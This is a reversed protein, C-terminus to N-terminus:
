EEGAKVRAFRAVAAQKGLGEVLKGISVKPDKVSPQDLLVVEKYFGNLRGTVAGAIKDEPVNENRSKAELVERERAIVDDPVEDRTLYDPAAFSIHLAIEHAIARADESSPDVGSLEVLVGITGRENQMHKYADVLGNTAEFRVVRGLSVNEGVTAAMQTITDGVAAGNVTLAAVDTDGDNM